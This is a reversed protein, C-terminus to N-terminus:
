LAFEVNVGLSYADKQKFEKQEADPAMMYGASAGVSVRDSPNLITTEGSFTTPKNKNFDKIGSWRDETDLAEAAVSKSEKQRQEDMQYIQDEFNGTKTFGNVYAIYNSAAMTFTQLSEKAHVSTTCLLFAITLLTLKKVM